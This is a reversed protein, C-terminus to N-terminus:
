AQASQEADPFTPRLPHGARKPLDDHPDCMRGIQASTAFDLNVQALRILARGDQFGMAYRRFLGPLSYQYQNAQDRDLLADLLGDEEARWREMELQTRAQTKQRRCWEIRSQIFVNPVAM